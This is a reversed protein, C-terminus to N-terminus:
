VTLRHKRRSSWLRPGTACWKPSVTASIPRTTACASSVMGGMQQAHAVMLEYSEMRTKECLETYLTINGGVIQQLAAGLNGIVSRSRVTIGRVMGLHKIVKYGELEFGTTVLASDM